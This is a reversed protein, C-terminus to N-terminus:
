LHLGFLSLVFAVSLIVSMCVIFFFFFFFFFVAVSSNQPVTAPPGLCMRIITKNIQSILLHNM